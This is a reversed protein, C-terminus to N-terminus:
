QRIVNEFLLDIGSVDLHGVVDVDDFQCSRLPSSGLDTRLPSSGLANLGNDNDNRDSLLDISEGEEPENKSSENNMQSEALPDQFYEAFKPEILSYLDNIVKVMFKDKKKDANEEDDINLDRHYEM